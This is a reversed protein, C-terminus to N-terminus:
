RVYQGTRRKWYDEDRQPIAQYPYNLGSAPNAMRDTAAFYNVLDTADQESLNFKPM